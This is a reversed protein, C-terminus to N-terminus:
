SLTLRKLTVGLKWVSWNTQEQGEALVKSNSRCTYLTSSFACMTWVFEWFCEQWPTTGGGGWLGTRCETPRLASSGTAKWSTTEFAPLHNDHFVMSSCGHPGVWLHTQCPYYSRTVLTVPEWYDDREREQQVSKIVISAWSYYSGLNDTVRNNCFPTSPPPSPAPGPYFLPSSPFALCVTMKIEVGSIERCQIITAAAARCTAM